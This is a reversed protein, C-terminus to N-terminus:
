TEPQQNKSENNSFLLSLLCVYFSVALKIAKGIGVGFLQPLVGKYMGRLGERNYSKVFCDWNNKYMYRDRRQNQMRTKILDMPYVATAGIALFKSCVYKNSAMFM